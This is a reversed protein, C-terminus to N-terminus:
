GKTDEFEEKVMVGDLLKFKILRVYDLIRVIPLDNVKTTFM